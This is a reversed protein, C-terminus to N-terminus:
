RVPMATTAKVRDLVFSTKCNELEDPALTVIAKAFAIELGQEFADLEVLHPAAYKGGCSLREKKKSSSRMRRVDESREDRQM